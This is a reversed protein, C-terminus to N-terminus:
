SFCVIGVEEKGELKAVKLLIALIKKIAGLWLIGFFIFFRKIVFNM